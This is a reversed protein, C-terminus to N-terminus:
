HREAEGLDVACEGVVVVMGLLDFGIDRVAPTHLGLDLALLGAMEFAVGAPLHGDGREERVVLDSAVQDLGQTSLARIHLTSYVNEPLLVFVTVEESVRRSFAADEQGAIFPDVDDGV